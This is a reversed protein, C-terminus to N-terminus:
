RTAIMMTAKDSGQDVVFGRPLRYSRYDDARAVTPNLSVIIISAAILASKVTM